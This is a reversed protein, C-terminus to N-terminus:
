GSIMRFKVFIEKIFMRVRLYNGYFFIFMYSCAQRQKLAKLCEEQCIRRQARSVGGVRMNSVVVSYFMANLKEGGRLFFEYDIAIRYNEDFAGVRRIFNINTFSSPHPITDRRLFENWRFPHGYPQKLNRPTDERSVSQIQGFIVDKDPNDRLVSSFKYLVQSDAFYDDSNLFLIWKGKAQEVGQNFAHSLGRDPRSHWYALEQEFEKIIETTKDTSGGDIVIYEYDAFDQDIVSELCQRIYDEANLCVTIVSILPKDTDDM